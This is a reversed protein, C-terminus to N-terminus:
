DSRKGRLWFVCCALAAPGPAPLGLGAPGLRLALRSATPKVTIVTTSGRMAPWVTADPGLHPRPLRSWYRKIGTTKAAALTV